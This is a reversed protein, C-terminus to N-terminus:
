CQLDEVEWEHDFKVVELTLSKYRYETFMSCKLPSTLGSRLAIDRTSTFIIGGEVASYWLPRAENRYGILTKDKHLEVVAM